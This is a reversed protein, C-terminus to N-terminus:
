ASIAIGGGVPRREIGAEILAQRVTERSVDLERAIGNLSAGARYMAAVRAGDVAPRPTRPPLGLKVREAELLLDFDRAHVDALARLARQRAVLDTRGSGQRRGHEM